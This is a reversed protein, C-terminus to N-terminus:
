AKITEISLARVAPLGRGSLMQLFAGGGTSVYSIQEMLSYRELAANTDGGGVLSYASSQAIAEAVARTGTEFGEQEFKGMPGNWVITGATNLESAFRDITRSGIDLVNGNSPLNKVDVERRGHDDIAFDEPLILTDPREDLMQRAKKAAEGDARHDGVDIGLARLFPFAMAGGLLLRDAVQSIHEIVDIKSSVKAGGIAVVLPRDPSELVGGLAELEKRMLFGGGVDNIYKTVGVNSAHSRHANAFADDVYADALSALSRSFSEDNNEEGLEFRLNELLVISGQKMTSTVNEVNPGIVEDVFVVKEGLLQSLRESVPKLSLEPVRKGGPRDLHSCIIPMGGNELIYQVTPLIALIRSDDAVTGDKLPVNLDVRLLIRKGDINMQDVYRISNMIM